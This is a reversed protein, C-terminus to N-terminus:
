ASVTLRKHRRHNSKLLFFAKAEQFVCSINPAKAAISLSGCNSAFLGETNASLYLYIREKICVSACVYLVKGSMGLEVDANRTSCALPSAYFITTWPSTM